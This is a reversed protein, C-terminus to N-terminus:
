PISYPTIDPTGFGIGPSSSSGGFLGQVGENSALSGIAGATSTIGGIVQAATSPTPGRSRSSGEVISNIVDPVQKLQRNLWDIMRRDYQEMDLFDQYALDMAAQKLERQAAGSAELMRLKQSAQNFKMQSLQQRGAAIEQNMGAADALAQRDQQSIGVAQEWARQRGMTEIESLGRMKNRLGRAMNERVASSQYGSTGVGASNIRALEQDWDEGHRRKEVDIVNEFFPSAYRQYTDRNWTPVNQTYESARSLEQGAMNLDPSPANYLDRIGSHVRREDLNFPALRGGKYQKYPKLSAREARRVNAKTPGALWDPLEQRTTQKEQLTGAGGKGM